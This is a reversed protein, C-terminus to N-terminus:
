AIPTFHFLPQRDAIFPRIADGLTKAGPSNRFDVTHNELTDWEVALRYLAPQEVSRMLSVSRCGKSSTLIGKISSVAVEFDREQGANIVFTAHEVVM